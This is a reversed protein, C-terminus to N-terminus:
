AFNKKALQGHTAQTNEAHKEHCQLAPWSQGPQQVLGPEYKVPRYISGGGFAFWRSPTSGSDCADMVSNSSLVIHSTVIINYLITTKVVVAEAM